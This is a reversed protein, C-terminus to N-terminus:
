WWCPALLVVWCVVSLLWTPMPKDSMCCREVTEEAAVDENVLLMLADASMDSDQPACAVLASTAM